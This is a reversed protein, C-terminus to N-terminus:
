DFFKSYVLGYRIKGDDDLEYYDACGFNCIDGKKYPKGYFSGDEVFDLRIKVQLYVRGNGFVIDEPEGLTEQFASHSNTWYDLIERKGKLAKESAYWYCDEAMYKEFLADYERKNYAQFFAAIDEATSIGTKELTYERDTEWQTRGLAEAIEAATQVDGFFLRTNALTNRLAAEDPATTGDSV